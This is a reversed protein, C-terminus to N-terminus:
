QHSIRKNRAVDSKMRALTREADEIWQFDYETHHLNKESEQIVTEFQKDRKLFLNANTLKLRRPDDTKKYMGRKLLSNKITNIKGVSWNLYMAEKVTNTRADFTGFANHRADWDVCMRSATYYRVEPDSLEKLWELEKRHFKIWGNM